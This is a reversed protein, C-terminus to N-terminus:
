EEALWVKLLRVADEPKDKMYDAIRKRKEERMRAEDSIESDATPLHLRAKKTELMRNNEEITKASAFTGEFQSELPAVQVRIRGLLSRIVIV